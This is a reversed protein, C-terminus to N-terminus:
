IVGHGMSAIYGAFVEYRERLVFVVCWREEEEAPVILYRLSVDQKASKVVVKEAALVANRITVYCKTPANAGAFMRVNKM